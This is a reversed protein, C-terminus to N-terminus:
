PNTRPDDDTDDAPVTPRVALAKVREHPCPRHDLNHAQCNDDHDYRCPEDDVLDAVVSIWEDCEDRAIGLVATILKRAPEPDYDALTPRHRLHAAIMHKAITRAVNQEWRPPGFLGHPVADTGDLDSPANFHTPDPM